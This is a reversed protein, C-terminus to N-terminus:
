MGYGATRDMTSCKKTEATKSNCCKLVEHKKRNQDQLTLKLKQWFESKVNNTTKFFMSGVTVLAWKAVFYSDVIFSNSCLKLNEFYTISM